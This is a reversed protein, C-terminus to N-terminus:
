PTPRVGLKLNVFDNMVKGDRIITLALNQSPQKNRAVYFMLDYFTKMTKNDAGIIVDGGVSIPQGNVTVQRNGGRLGAAEAPGGSTITVVLTGRTNPDLNVTEAIGSNMDIGSIGIWPHEYKGNEILSNVERKITDSPIAFGVGSFDGSGSLIATNMGVVEGKLDLLPGGSNGPNIAADTQIVDVIVYGGSTDMTRGIASVIGLTMTNALGFPNGIAVVYMGVLLDSSVGLKLPQLLGEPADVQIVAMDSYPDTGVLTAPLQTGDLFTVQINTTDEVVHNNTVIRGEYDYVFGSGTGGGTPTTVSILVVSRRTMNYLHTLILSDTQNTYEVLKIQDKLDNIELQASNLQFRLSDLETNLSNINSNSTGGQFYTFYSVVGINMIM